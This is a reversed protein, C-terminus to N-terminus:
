PKKEETLAAGAAMRPALNSQRFLKLIQDAVRNFEARDIDSCEDFPMQCELWSHLLLAVDRHTPEAMVSGLSSKMERELREVRAELDDKANCLDIAWQHLYEAHERSLTIIGQGRGSPGRWNYQKKIEALVEAITIM